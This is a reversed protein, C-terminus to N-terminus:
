LKNHVKSIEKQMKNASDIYLKKINNNSFLCNLEIYALDYAFDIHGQTELDVSLTVHKKRNNKIDEIMFINFISVLISKTDHKCGSIHFTMCFFTQGLNEFNFM